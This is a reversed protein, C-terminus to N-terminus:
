PTMASKSLRGRATGSVSGILAPPLVTATGSTARLAGRKLSSYGSLLASGHWGEEHRAGLGRRRGLGGAELQDGPIARQLGVRLRAHGCELDGAIEEGVGRGVRGVGDRSTEHVAGVALDDDADVVEAGVVHLVEHQLDSSCVDSSWDCDFRTHRRRSSFFFYVCVSLRDAKSDM